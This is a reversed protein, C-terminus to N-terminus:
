ILQTSVFSSASFVSLQCSLASLKRAAYLGCLTVAAAPAVGAFGPDWSNGGHATGACQALQAGTRKGLGPEARAADLVLHALVQHRAQTLVGVSRDKGADDTVVIRDDRLDDVGDERAVVEDQEAQPSLGLAADQAGQGRQKIRLQWVNGAALNVVIGIGGDAAAALLQNGFLFLSRGDCPERSVMAIDFLEGRGVDGDGIQNAVDIRDLGRTAPVFERALEGNMVAQQGAGIAADKGDVFERVEGPFNLHSQEVDHLFAVHLNLAVRDTQREVQRDDEAGVGFVVGRAALDNRRKFVADSRLNARVIRRRDFLSNGNSRLLRPNLAVARAEM